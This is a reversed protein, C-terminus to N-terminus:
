RVGAQPRSARLLEGVVSESQPVGPDRNTMVVIGNGGRPHVQAACQFGVGWGQTYVRPEGRDPLFVGLGAAPEAASPRMLEAATGPSLLVGAGDWSALLDCLVVAFDTPTCWLGSGALGPYRSWGGDVPVGSTHHGTAAPAVTAGDQRLVATTLGLPGFVLDSLVVPFPKGTVVEVVHEVVAYGADSYSFEIGPPRIARVPGAHSSTTGRLLDIVAPVAEGPALPEFSGAADDIGAQHSLLDRVTVARTRTGDLRPLRWGPTLGDLDADLDLDGREVLRLVAVATVLKTMSCAHFLTRDDIPEASGATVVGAAEARAVRGDEIVAISIAPTAPDTTLSALDPALTM